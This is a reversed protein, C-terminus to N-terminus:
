KPKTALHAEHCSGCEVGPNHGEPDIGKIEVRKSTPYPLATHCRLCLERSRDIFLKPPEAPHEKAPGHCNECEIRSHFSSLLQKEQEQHCDKCYEKGQFKGKLTKWEEVNSKRYWGYMYDGQHIGFDKPVMLTRALLVIVVVALVVYLPRLVYMDVGERPINM